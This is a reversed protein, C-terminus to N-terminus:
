NLHAHALDEETLKFHTKFFTNITQGSPEVKKLQEAAQHTKKPNNTKSKETLGNAAIKLSKQMLKDASDSYMQLHQAVRTLNGNKNTENLPTTFGLSDSILGVAFLMLSSPFINESEAGRQELLAKVGEDSEQLHEILWKLFATRYEKIRTQNSPSPKTSVEVLEDFSSKSGIEDIEYTPIQISTDPTFLRNGSHLEEILDKVNFIPGNNKVVKLEDDSTGFMTSLEDESINIGSAIVTNLFREIVPEESDDKRTIQYNYLYLAPNLRLAHYKIAEKIDAVDPPIFDQTNMSKNANSVTDRVAQAVVLVSAKHIYDGETMGCPLIKNPYIQM